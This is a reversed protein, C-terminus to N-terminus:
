AYRSSQAAAFRMMHSKKWRPLIGSRKVRRSRSSSGLGASKVRPGFGDGAPVDEGWGASSPWLRGATDSGNGLIVEGRYHSASSVGGFVVSSPTVASPTADRRGM